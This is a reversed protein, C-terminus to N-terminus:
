LQCVVMFGFAHTATKFGDPKKLPWGIFAEYHYNAKDGRFGMVAGALSEGLLYKATPGSVQGYDLGVYLECGAKELPFSLENRIFWGREASLTQEGDFGRVTYRNGISFFESGYVLDDTYQGRINASYRAKVDGFNVPTTLSADLLWMQYRTTLQGPQFDTTGPQAGFWPVGQQFTIQGDLVTQGFYQKHAIGIKAATTNKRQVQIETDDIYSSSNKKLIGFELYTKETQNRYLLQRITLETNESEGSSVFPTVNSTITQHYDNHSHSVTFTSQGYPFSFYLSDGQTGLKKGARQGDNNFSINFLDNINLLNDIALTQSIQLKGTPITGSDDTTISLKFNKDRKVTILVDSEGPKEGPAIEMDVDQSPVRKMQELGQELNRINLLDGPRTPFATQWSGWTGPEKFRIDRIVGPVLTLKLVGKALDQETVFVKTTVYGRNIFSNNLRKIILNIGQMGINKGKYQDLMTQAWPFLDVKDGELQLTHIVFSPIEEPLTTDDKFNNGQRLFVDKEQKHQQEEQAEQRARQNQVEREDATIPQALSTSVNSFFMIFVAILIPLTIGTLYARAGKKSSQTYEM